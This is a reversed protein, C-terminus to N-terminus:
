PHQGVALVISDAPVRWEFGVHADNGCRMLVEFLPHPLPEEAFIQHVAEVDHPQPQRRQPFSRIVNCGQGSLKQLLARALKSNLGLQEGIGRELHQRREREGPIHPLQLVDTMPEGDHRRRLLDVDAIQRGFHAGRTACM